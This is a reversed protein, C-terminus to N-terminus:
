HGPVPFFLIAYGIINNIFAELSDYEHPSPTWNLANGLANSAFGATFLAALLTQVILWVTLTGHGLLAVAFPIISFIVGIIAGGIAGSRVNQLVWSRLDETQDAGARHVATGVANQAAGAAAIYLGAYIAFGFLVAVATLITSDGQEGGRLSVVLNDLFSTNINYYVVPIQSVM